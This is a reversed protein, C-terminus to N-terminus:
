ENGSFGGFRGDFQVHRERGEIEITFLCFLDGKDNIQRPSGVVAGMRKLWRISRDNKAAVYNFLRGYQNSWWSLVYRSFLVFDKKHRDVDDTGLCWVVRGYEYRERSLGFICIPKKGDTMMMVLSSGQISQRIGQEADDYGVALLEYRDIDRLHGAIEKIADEHKENKYVVLDCNDM